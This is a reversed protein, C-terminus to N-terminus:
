LTVYPFRRILALNSMTLPLHSLDRGDPLPQHPVLGRSFDVLIHEHPLVVGLEECPVKGLVTEFTSVM